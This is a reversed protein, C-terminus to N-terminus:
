KEMKHGESRWIKHKLSKVEIFYTLDGFETRNKKKVTNKVLDDIVVKSV